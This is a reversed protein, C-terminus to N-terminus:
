TPPSITLRCQRGFLLKLYLMLGDRYDRILQVLASEDGSLFQRYCQTAQDM